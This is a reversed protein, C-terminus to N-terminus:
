FASNKKPVGGKTYHVTTSHLTTCLLASCNLTTYHLVPSSRILRNYNSLLDDYLRKADPNAWSPRALFVVMLLAWGLPQWPAAM